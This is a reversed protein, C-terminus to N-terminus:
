AKSCSCPFGGFSRWSSGRSVGHWSCVIGGGGREYYIPVIVQELVTQLKCFDPTEDEFNLFGELNLSVMVREFPSYKYSKLRDLFPLLINELEGVAEEYRTTVGPDYPAVASLKRCVKGHEVGAKLGESDVKELKTKSVVIEADRQQVVESSKLFKHEFIEKITIEHKRRLNSRINRKKM